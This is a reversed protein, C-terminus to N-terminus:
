PRRRYYRNNFKKIVVKESVQLNSVPRINTPIPAGSALVFRWEAGLGVTSWNTIISQYFSVASSTLVPRLGLTGVESENLCGRYLLRGDRGFVTNRRVFLCIELPTADSSLTRTGPVSFPFTALTNPNYPQSDPVYTSITIRDIIVYTYYLNVELQQLRIALNELSTAPNTIDQTAQIEYNNAWAYGGFQKYVRATLVEDQTIVSLTM